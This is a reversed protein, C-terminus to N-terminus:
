YIKETVNKTSLSINKKRIDFILTKIYEHININFEKALSLLYIETEIVKKEIREPKDKWAFIDSLNHIRDALKIIIVNYIITKFDEDTFIKNKRKATNRAYKILSYISKYHKFYDTNSIKKYKEKLKKYRKLWDKEIDTLDVKDWVTYKVLEEDDSESVKIKKKIRDSILWKENLIWTDKIEDFEKLDEDNDIYKWFAQKSLLKTTFWVLINNTFRQDIWEMTADTDEISDHEIITGIISIENKVYEIAKKRHEINANDLKDFKEKLNFLNNIYIDIVWNIHTIYNEWSDRQRDKYKLETLTYANVVETFRDGLKELIWTKVNENITDWLFDFLITLVNSKFEIIKNLYNEVNLHSENLSKIHSM